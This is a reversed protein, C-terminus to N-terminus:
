ARVIPDSSGDHVLRVYLDGLSTTKSKFGVLIGSTCAVNAYAPSYRSLVVELYKLHNYRATPFLSHILHRSDGVPFILSRAVLGSLGGFETRKGLKLERTVGMDSDAADFWRHECLLSIWAFFPLWVFLAPLTVWWIASIGGLAYTCILLTGLALYRCILERIKGANPALTSGAAAVRFYLGKPTLPAGVVWWFRSATVSQHLGVALLSDFAPDLGKRGVNPHHLACHLRAWSHTSLNLLPYQSFTDALFLGFKRHHTLAGHMSFHALEELARFRGAVAISVLCGLAVHPLRDALRILGFIVLWNGIFVLLGLWDDIKRPQLSPSLHRIAHICFDPEDVISCKRRSERAAEVDITANIISEAEVDLRRHAVYDILLCIVGVVLLIFGVTM